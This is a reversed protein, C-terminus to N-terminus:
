WPGEDLNKRISDIWGFCLAEDLADSYTINEKKTHKKYYIMWIGDSKDHNIKLWERFDPRSKFHIEEYTKM